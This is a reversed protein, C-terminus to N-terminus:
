DVHNQLNSKKEHEALYEGFQCLKTLPVM